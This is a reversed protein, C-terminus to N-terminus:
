SSAADPYLELLRPLSMEEFSRIVYDADSLVDKSGVGIVRMGGNRAAQVGSYADEFVVCHKPAAGLAEAANVFVEPSPKASTVANGDIVADFVGDLGVAELITNANKSASGIARAIGNDELQNLFALVGPLIEGPQMKGILERYWRNKRDAMEEKQEDSFQQEGLSLIIDLSAMRSIGKLRENDHATFAIGTDAALRRWAQFHYKATDVIVGDLDFICAKIDYM